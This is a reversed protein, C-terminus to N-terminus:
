NNLMLEKMLNELYVYTKMDKGCARCTEDVWKTLWPFYKIFVM